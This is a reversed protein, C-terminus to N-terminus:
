LSTLIEEKYSRFELFDDSIYQIGTVAIQNKEQEFEINTIQIKEEFSKLLTLENTVLNLKFLDGGTNVTGWRFGIILFVENDEKILFNKINKDHELPTFEYEIVGTLYNIKKFSAKLEPEFPQLIYIYNNNKIPPSSLEFVKNLQNMTLNKTKLDYQINKVTAGRLIDHTNVKIIKLTM